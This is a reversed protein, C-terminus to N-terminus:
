KSRDDFKSYKADSCFHMLAFAHFAVAALHPSEPYDPDFEEGEWFANAHRLMADYSLSWDYGREWNRVDYKSAGYGYREALWRLPKTPILAFRALKSGKQGGTESTVRVEEEKPMKDKIPELIPVYKDSHYKM